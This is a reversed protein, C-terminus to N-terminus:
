DIVTGRVELHYVRRNNGFDKNGSRDLAFMFQLKKDASEILSEVTLWPSKDTTLTSKRDHLENQRLVTQYAKELEKGQSILLSPSDQIAGLLMNMQIDLNVQDQYLYYPKLLIRIIQRGCRYVENHYRRVVPEFEGTVTGWDVSKILNTVKECDGQKVSEQIQVLLSYNTELHQCFDNM